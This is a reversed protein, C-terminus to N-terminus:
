QQKKKDIYSMAVGVAAIAGGAIAETTAEDAWGKAIVFGGALTLLHRFLSLAMSKLM